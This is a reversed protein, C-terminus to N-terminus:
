VYTKRLCTKYKEENQPWLGVWAVDSVQILDYYSRVPVPLLRSEVSTPNVDVINVTNM